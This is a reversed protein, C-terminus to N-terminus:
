AGLDREIFDFAYAEADPQKYTGILRSGLMLELTACQPTSPRAVAFQDHFEFVCVPGAAWMNSVTEILQSLQM